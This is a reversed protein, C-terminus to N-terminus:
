FLQHPRIVQRFQASGHGVIAVGVGQKPQLSEFRHRTPDTPWTLLGRRKLNWGLSRWHGYFQHPFVM